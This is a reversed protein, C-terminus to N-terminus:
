TRAPAVQHTVGRTRSSIYQQLSTHRSIYIASAFNTSAGGTTRSTKCDNNRVTRASTCVVRFGSVHMQFMYLSKARHATTVACCPRRTGCRRRIGDQGCVRVFRTAFHVLLLGTGENGPGPPQSSYLITYKTYLLKCYSLNKLCTHDSCMDKCTAVEQGGYCMQSLSNCSSSIELLFLHNCCSLSPRVTRFM